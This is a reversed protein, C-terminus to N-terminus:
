GRLEDLFPDVSKLAIEIIPDLGEVNPYDGGAIYDCVCKLFINASRDDSKAVMHFMRALEACANAMETRNPKQPDKPDIGTVERIRAWYKQRPYSKGHIWLGVSSQTVGIKEALDQQRMGTQRMYILLKDSFNM